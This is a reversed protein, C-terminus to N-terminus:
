RHSRQAGGATELISRFQREVGADIQKMRSPGGAGRAWLVGSGLWLVGVHTTDSRFSVRTPYSPPTDMPQYWGSQQAAVLDRLARVSATDLEVRSSDGAHTWAAAGTVGALEGLPSPGPTDCGSLAGAVATLFISRRM